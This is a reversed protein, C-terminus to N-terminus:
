KMKRKILNAKVENRIARTNGSPVGEMNLSTLANWDEEDFNEFKIVWQSNSQLSATIIIGQDIAQKILGM